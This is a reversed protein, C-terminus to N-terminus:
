QVARYQGRRHPAYDTPLAVLAASATASMDSDAAAFASAATSVAGAKRFLLSGVREGVDDRGSWFSSFAAAVVTATGFSGAVTEGCARAAQAARTLSEGDAAIDVLAAHIEPLDM